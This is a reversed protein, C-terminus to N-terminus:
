ILKKYNEKIFKILLDLFRRMRTKRNNKIEDIFVDDETNALLDFNVQTTQKEKDM